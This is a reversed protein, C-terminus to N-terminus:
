PLQHRFHQSSDWMKDAADAWIVQFARVIEVRLFNDQLKSVSSDKLCCSDPLLNTHLWVITVYKMSWQIKHLSSLSGKVDFLVM